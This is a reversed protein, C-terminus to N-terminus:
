YGPFVQRLDDLSVPGQAVVSAPTHAASLRGATLRILSEAPMTVTTSPAGIEGETLSCADAGLELTYTRDPETTIIRVTGTTGTAKAFFGAFMPLQTLVLPVVYSPVIADPDSGVRVDWGHLGVEGLRMKTYFAVSVPAPLFGMDIQRGALDGDSFAELAGSLTASATAFAAAQEAPPMADWRDWVAQAADMDAQGTTVTKLGIEAASGLHSLVAAVSWESCATPSVLDDANLRGAFAILEDHGTRVAQIADKAETVNVDPM